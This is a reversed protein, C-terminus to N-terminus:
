LVNEVERSETERSVLVALVQARRAQGLRRPPDLPAEPRVPQRPLQGDVRRLRQRGLGDSSVFCINDFIVKPFSHLLIARLQEM